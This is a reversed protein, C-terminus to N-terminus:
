LLAHDVGNESLIAVPRSADLGRELLAQGIRRAADLAEAYSVKRWAVASREALFTREPAEAAWRVLWAGISRAAPRLPVPSSLRIVGDTREVEVRAPAFRLSSRLRPM